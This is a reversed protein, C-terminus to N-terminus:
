REVSLEQRHSTRWIWRSGMMLYARMSIQAWTFTWLSWGLEIVAVSDLTFNHGSDATTLIELMKEESLKSFRKCKHSWDSCSIQLTDAHRLLCTYCKCFSIWFLRNCGKWLDFGRVRVDDCPRAACSSTTEYSTPRFGLDLSVLHTCCRWDACWAFHMTSM